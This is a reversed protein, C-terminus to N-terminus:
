QNSLYCPPVKWVEAPSISVLPKAVPIQLLLGARHKRSESCGNFEPLLGLNLITSTFLGGPIVRAIPYEIKQRPKNGSLVNPLAALSAALAAMLIPTMREM